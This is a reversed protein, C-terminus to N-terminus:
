PVFFSVAAPVVQIEMPLYGAFDGDVQRCTQLVVPVFTRVVHLPKELFELLFARNRTHERSDLRQIMERFLIQGYEKIMLKNGRFESKGPM